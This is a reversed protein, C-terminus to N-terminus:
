RGVPVQGSEHLGQIMQAGSLVLDIIGTVTGPNVVGHDKNVVDSIMPQCAGRLYQADQLLPRACNCVYRGLDIPINWRFQVIGCAAINQRM